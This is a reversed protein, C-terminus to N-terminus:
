VSLPVLPKPRSQIWVCLQRVCGGLVVVLAREERGGSVKKNWLVACHIERNSPEALLVCLPMGM